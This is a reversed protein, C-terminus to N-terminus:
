KRGYDKKTSELDKIIQTLTPYIKWGRVKKWEKRDWIEYLILATICLAIFITAGVIAIIPMISNNEEMYAGQLRAVTVVSSRMPGLPDRVDLASKWLYCRLAMKPVSNIPAQYM